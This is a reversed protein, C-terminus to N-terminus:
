PCLGRTEFTNWVTGCGDRFNEPYVSDWCMWRSSRSPRWKCLPCRIGPFHLDSEDKEAIQQDEEAEPKRLFLFLPIAYANM